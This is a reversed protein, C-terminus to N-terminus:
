TWPGDAEQLQFAAEVLYPGGGTSDRASFLVFRTAEFRRAPFYGRSSLYDAVSHPSPSRLRALPVHPTYRHSDPELGIRRLRREQDAQLEILQPTPRIRAIIARPRDGGFWGLGDLAVPFSPRRIENLMDAAERAVREDVDGIFRLTIHYNEPDIWRAASIGGRLGALETAIESPLELGTFLRPL